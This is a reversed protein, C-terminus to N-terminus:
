IYVNEQQKLNLQFHRVAVFGCAVSNIAITYTKSYSRSFHSSLIM